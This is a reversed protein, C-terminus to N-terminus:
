NVLDPNECDYHRVGSSMRIVSYLNRPSQMKGPPANPDSGLGSRPCTHKWEHCPVPTVLKPSTLRPEANYAQDRNWCYAFVQGEIHGLRHEQGALRISIVTSAASVTNEGLLTAPYSRFSWM